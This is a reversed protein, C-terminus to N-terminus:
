QNDRETHPPDLNHLAPSRSQLITIACRLRFAAVTIGLGLPAGSLAVGGLLLALSTALPLVPIPYSTARTSAARPAVTTSPKRSESFAAAAHGSDGGFHRIPLNVCDVEVQGRQRRYPAVASSNRDAHGPMARSILM